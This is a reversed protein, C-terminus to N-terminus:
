KIFNYYDTPTMFVINKTKLWEVLEKFKAIDEDSWRAVHGAFM